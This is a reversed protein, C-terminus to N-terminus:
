FVYDNLLTTSAHLWTRPLTLYRCSFKLLGKRDRRLIVARKLIEAGSIKLNNNSLLRIRGTIHSKIKNKPKGEQLGTSRRGGAGQWLDPNNLWLLPKVTDRTFHSPQKAICLLMTGQNLVPFPFHINNQVQVKHASLFYNNSSSSGWSFCPLSASHKYSASHSRLYRTTNLM